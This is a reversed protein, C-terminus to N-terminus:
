QSGPKLAMRDLAPFAVDQDFSYSAVRASVTRDYAEFWMPVWPVVTEMLLQDM